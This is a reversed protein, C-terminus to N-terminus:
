EVPIGCELLISTLRSQQVGQRFKPFLKQRELPLDDRSAQARARDGGIYPPRLDRWRRSRGEAQPM